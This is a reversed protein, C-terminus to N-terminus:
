RCTLTAKMLPSLSMRSSVTFRSSIRSRIRSSSIRSHIRSSSSSIRVAKIRSRIWSSRINNSSSNSGSVGAIDITMSGITLHHAASKTQM